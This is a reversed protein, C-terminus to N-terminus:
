QLILLVMAAVYIALMGVSEFGINALGSRERRLLGMLLIGNLVLALAMFFIQQESIDHYISGTRYAADAFAIIMLDFTNGGIIGGVALTLAGRRVAALTTVLEPSATTIATFLGGVVTESLGTRGALAIASEAVLYGAVMVVLALLLFTTWLRRSPVSGDDNQDPADLRTEPTEEPEWLPEARAQRAIRLGFLYAFMLVFSLPHISWVTVDPSGFALLPIGMLVVLLAGHMLNEVSASAHELNARRYTVDAIALVVTQAAINGIANSIALEPHNQAAATMSTVIGALSTAGGLLVAGFLAEGMGTRDALRDAVQTMRSGAVAIAIAAAAFLLIVTGLSWDGLDIFEM